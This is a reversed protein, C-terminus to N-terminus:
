IPPRYKLTNHNMPTNDDITILNMNDQIGEVTFWLFDDLKTYDLGYCDLPLNWYGTASLINFVRFCDDIGYLICLWDNRRTDSYEMVVREWSSMRYSTFLFGYAFLIKFTDELSHGQWDNAGFSMRYKKRNNNM